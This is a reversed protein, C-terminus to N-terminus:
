HKNEQASVKKLWVRQSTEKTYRSIKTEFYVENSLLESFNIQCNLYECPLRFYLNCKYQRCKVVDIKLNQFM